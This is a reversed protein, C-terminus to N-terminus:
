SRFIVLNCLMQGDAQPLEFALSIYNVDKFLNKESWEKWLYKDCNAKKRYHDFPGNPSIYYMELYKCSNILHSLKLDIFEYLDKDSYDKLIIHCTFSFQQYLEIHMKSENYPIDLIGFHELFKLEVNSEKITTGMFSKLIDRAYYKPFSSLRVIVNQPKKNSNDM